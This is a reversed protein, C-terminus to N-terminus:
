AVLKKKKKAKKEESHDSSQGSRSPKHRVKEESLSSKRGSSHTSARGSSQGPRTCKSPTAFNNYTSNTLSTASSREYLQKLRKTDDKPVESPEMYHAFSVRRTIKGLIKSDASSTLFVTAKPEQAAFSVVDYSKGSKAEFTGLQGDDHHLDLSIRQGDFDPVQDKPWQILWLETSDTSNLDLISARSDEQFEAADAM